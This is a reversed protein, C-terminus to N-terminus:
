GREVTWEATASPLSLHMNARREVDDVLERALEALKAESWEGNYTGVLEVTFTVIRRDNDPIAEGTV